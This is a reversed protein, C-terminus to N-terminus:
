IGILNLITNWSEILVPNFLCYCAGMFLLVAFLIRKYNLKLGLFGVLAFGMYIPYQFLQSFSSIWDGKANMPLVLNLILPIIALCGYVLYVKNFKSL